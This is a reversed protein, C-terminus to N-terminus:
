GGGGLLAAEKSESFCKNEKYYRAEIWIGGNRIYIVGEKCKLRTIFTGDCGATVLFLIAVCISQIKM